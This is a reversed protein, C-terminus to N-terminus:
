HLRRHIVEIEREINENALQEYLPPLHHYLKGHSQIYAQVKELFQLRGAYFLDDPVQAYEQRVAAAYKDYDDPHAALIALDADILIQALKDPAVLHEQTALILTQAQAILDITPLKLPELIKAMLLASQEENDSAHPNYVVDHFWAALNLLLRQDPDFINVDCLELMALIHELNHYHRQSDTYASILAHEIEQKIQSSIEFSTFHALNRILQKIKDKAIEIVPQSEIDLSHGRLAIQNAWTYFKQVENTAISPLNYAQFLDYHGLHVWEWILANYNLVNGKVKDRIANIEENTFGSKNLIQITSQQEEESFETDLYPELLLSWVDLTYVDPINNVKAFLRLYSRQTTSVFLIEGQKTVIEPPARHTLHIECINEALLRNSQWVSAVPFEYAQFELHNKQFIISM